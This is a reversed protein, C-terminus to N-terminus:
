MPPPSWFSMYVKNGASWQSQLIIKSWTFKPYIHVYPFSMQKYRWLSIFMNVVWIEGSTNFPNPLIKNSNFRSFCFHYKFKGNKKWPSDNTNLYVIRIPWISGVLFFPFAETFCMCWQILILFRLMPVFRHVCVTWLNKVLQNTQIKDVYFGWISDKQQTSRDWWKLGHSVLARHVDLWPM